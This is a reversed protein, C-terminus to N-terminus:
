NFTMDVMVIVPRYLIGDYKVATFITITRNKKLSQPYM